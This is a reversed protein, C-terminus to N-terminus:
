DQVSTDSEYVIMNDLRNNLNCLLYIHEAIVKSPYGHDSMKSKTRPIPIYYFKLDPKELYHESLSKFLMKYFGKEAAYEPHDPYGIESAISGMCIVIGQNPHTNLFKNLYKMNWDLTSYDPIEGGWFHENLHGASLIMIDSTAIVNETYVENTLYRPDNSERRTIYKIEIKDNQFFSENEMLISSPSTSVIRIKGGHCKPIFSGNIKKLKRILIDRVAPLECGKDHKVYPVTRAEDDCETDYFEYPYMSEEIEDWKFYVEDPKTKIVHKVGHNHVELGYGFKLANLVMTYDDTKWSWNLQTQTFIPYNTRIILGCALSTSPIPFTFKIVPRQESLFALRIISCTPHNRMYDEISLLTKELHELNGLAFDDDIFWVFPCNLENYRGRLQANTPVKDSPYYSSTVRFYKDDPDLDVHDYLRGDDSSTVNIQVKFKKTDALKKLDGILKANSTTYTRINLLIGIM